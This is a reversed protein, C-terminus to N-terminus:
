AIRCLWLQHRIHIILFMQEGLNTHIITRSGTVTNTLVVSNPCTHGSYRPCDEVMVGDKRMSEVVWDAELGTALTGLFSSKFGLKAM